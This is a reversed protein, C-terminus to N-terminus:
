LEISQYSEVLRDIINPINETADYIDKGFNIPNDEEVSNEWRAQIISM